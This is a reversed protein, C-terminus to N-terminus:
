SIIIKKKWNFESLRTPMATACWRDRREYFSLRTTKFEIDSCRHARSFLNFDYEPAGWATALQKEYGTYVVNHVRSPPHNIVRLLGGGDIYAIDSTVMHLNARVTKSPGASNVYSWFLFFGNILLDSRPNVHYWTGILVMTILPPSFM